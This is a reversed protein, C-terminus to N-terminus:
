RGCVCESSNCCVCYFFFFCVGSYGDIFRVSIPLQCASLFISPVYAPLLVESSATAQLMMCLRSVVHSANPLIRGPRVDIQVRKNGHQFGQM